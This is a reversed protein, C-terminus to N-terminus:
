ISLQFLGRRFAKFNFFADSVGLKGLTKSAIKRNIPAKPNVGIKSLIIKKLHNRNQRPKYCLSNSDQRNLNQIRKM